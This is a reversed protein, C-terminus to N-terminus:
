TLCRKAPMESVMPMILWCVLDDKDSARAESCRGLGARVRVRVRVSRYRRCAELDSTVATPMEGLVDDAKATERPQWAECDQTSTKSM